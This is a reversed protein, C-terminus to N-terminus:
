RCSNYQTSMCNFRCTNWNSNEISNCETFKDYNDEIGPNAGTYAWTCATYGEDRTSNCRSTCSNYETEAKSKCSDYETKRQTSRNILNVCEEADKTRFADGNNQCVYNYSNNNQNQPVPTPWPTASASLGWGTRFKICETETTQFQVSDPGTCTVQPPKPQTNVVKAKPTPTPQPTANTTIPTPIKSTNSGFIKESSNNLNTGFVIVPFALGIVFLLKLTDYFSKKMEPNVVRTGDRAVLGVIFAVVGLGINGFFIKDYQPFSPYKNIYIVLGVFITITLFWTWFSIKAIM